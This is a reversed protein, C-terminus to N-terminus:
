TRSTVKSSSRDWTRRPVPGWTIAVTRLRAIESKRSAPAGNM